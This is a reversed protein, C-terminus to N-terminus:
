TRSYKSSAATRPSMARRASPSRSSSMTATRRATRSTGPWRSRIGIALIRRSSAAMTRVGRALHRRHAQARRGHPPDPAGHAARSREIGVALVEVRDNHMLTATDARALALPASGDDPIVLVDGNARGRVRGSIRVATARPRLAM